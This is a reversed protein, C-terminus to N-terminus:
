YKFAPFIAGKYEKTIIDAVEKTHYLDVIHNYLKDGADKERVAIVNVFPNDLGWGETNEYAIADRKLVLGHDSAFGGNIFSAAVDDMAAFANGPDVWYFKINKPNEVIDSKSPTWGANEKLKLVKNAELVRLARGTTIPDSPVAISDGDKLESLSKIKKSYVGLPAILTTGIAKLHYGHEESETNLFKGTMCAHMDIDGDELARNPLQYDNFKVIQLDVGEGKLKKIIPEWQENNEGVVGVKVTRTEDASAQQAPIIAALALSAAIALNKFVAM